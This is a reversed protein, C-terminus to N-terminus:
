DGLLGRLRHRFYRSSTLRTQDRLVFVFSGKGWPECYRVADARILTSRRIRVFSHGLLAEMEEMTARHRLVQDRLHLAVYNGQAEVWEIDGPEVFVIRGDHRVALRRQPEPPDAAARARHWHATAAALAARLGAAQDRDIAQRARDIADRFREPDVPKLLYDVAHADFARLAHEDYATVFVVPPMEPVGITEIVGFGDMRPMQVDLLVLDPRRERIMRVGEGGSTAERITTSGPVTGLLDRIGRRALPEDDVILVDLAEAATV